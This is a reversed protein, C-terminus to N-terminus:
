RRGMMDGGAREPEFKNMTMSRPPSSAANWLISSALLHRTVSTDTTVALIDIDTMFGPRTVCAVCHVGIEGEKKEGLKSFQHIVEGM